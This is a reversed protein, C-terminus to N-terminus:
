LAALALFQVVQPRSAFPALDALQAHQPSLSLQACPSPAAFAPHVIQSPVSYYCPSRSVNLAIIVFLCLLKHFRFMSRCQRWAGPRMWSVTAAVDLNSELVVFVQDKSIRTWLFRARRGRWGMYELGTGCRRWGM